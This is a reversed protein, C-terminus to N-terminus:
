EPILKSESTLRGPGRLQGNDVKEDAMMRWRVMRSQLSAWASASKRRQVWYSAV